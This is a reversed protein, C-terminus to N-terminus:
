RAGEPAGKLQPPPLGMALADRLDRRVLDFYKIVKRLFRSTIEFLQKMIDDSYFEVTGSM